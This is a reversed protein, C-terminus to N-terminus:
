EFTEIYECYYNTSYWIILQGGRGSLEEVARLFSVSGAIPVGKCGCVM